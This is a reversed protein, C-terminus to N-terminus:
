SKRFLFSATTFYRGRYTARLRDNKLEDFDFDLKGVPTCGLKEFESLFLNIDTALYAGGIGKYDVGGEWADTKQEPLYFDTTVYILGKKKVVRVMEGIAKKTRLLFTKRSVPRNSPYDADLHEMASINIVVEFSNDRFSLRTMDGQVHRVGEPIKEMPIELDLAVVKASLSALYNPLRSSGVGLDLVKKGSFSVKSVLVGYEWTRIGLTTPEFLRPFWAPDFGAMKHAYRRLESLDRLDFIRNPRVKLGWDPKLWLWTYAVLDVLSMKRQFALRIWNIVTQRRYDRMM